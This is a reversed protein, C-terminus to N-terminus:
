EYCYASSFHCNLTEKFENLISGVHGKSFSQVEPICDMNPGLKKVNVM